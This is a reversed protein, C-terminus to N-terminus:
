RAKATRKSTAADDAPPDTSTDGTSEGDGGPDPAGTTGDDPTPVNADGGPGGDPPIFQVDGPWPPANPDAPDSSAVPAVPDASDEDEPDFLDLQHANAGTRAEYLERLWEQVTVANEGDVVEIHRFRATVMVGGDQETRKHREVIGLVVFRQLPKRGMEDGVAVLGNYEEVAKGLTGKINVATAPRAARKPKTDDDEPPRARARSRPM